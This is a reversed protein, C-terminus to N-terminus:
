HRFLISDSCSLRPGNDIADEGGRMHDFSGPSGDQSLRGLLRCILRRDAPIENVITECIDSSM